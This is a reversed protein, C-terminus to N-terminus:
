ADTSKVDRLSLWDEVTSVDGFFNRVNCITADLEAASFTPATADRLLTVRYGIMYAHRLTSEVCVNAAFGVFTLDSVELSRLVIELDTGIFASYRHKTIVPEDPHPEVEYFDSGWGGAACLRGDHIAGGLRAKWSYDDTWSRHETRIFIVPVGARRAAEISAIVKPMRRQCETVAYGISAGVGKEHVFDNQVDIVLLASRRADGM